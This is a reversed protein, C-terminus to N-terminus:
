QHDFSDHRQEGSRFHNAEDLERLGPVQNFYKSTLGILYRGSQYIKTDDISKNFKNQVIAIHNLQVTHISVAFMIIGVGTLIALIICACRYTGQSAM